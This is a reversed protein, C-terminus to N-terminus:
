TPGGATREDPRPIKGLASREVLGLEVTLQSYEPGLEAAIRNRWEVQEVAVPERAMDLVVHLAQMRGPARARSTVHADRVGAQNRLWGELREPFIWESGPSKCANDIRGVLRLHGHADRQVLDGTAFRGRRGTHQHLYGLYVNPGVIELEFLGPHAPAPLLRAEVGPCPPPLAGPVVVQGPREALVIGGTETLGYFNLVEIGLAAVADDRDREALPAGTCAV